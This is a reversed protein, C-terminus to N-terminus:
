VRLLICKEQVVVPFLIRGDGNDLIALSDGSREEAICTVVALIIQLQRSIKKFVTITYGHIHRIM